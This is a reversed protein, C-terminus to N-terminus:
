RVIKLCKTGLANVRCGLIQSRGVCRSYDDDCRVQGRVQDSRSEHSTVRSEHSTVRSGHGTVRSGHSTVRSEHSTVRSGHGTVRSGHGTVRSEHSTVRSGHRRCTTVTLGPTESVCANPASNRAVNRTTRVVRAVSSGTRCSTPQLASEMPSAYPTPERNATFSGAVM